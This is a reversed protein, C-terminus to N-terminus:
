IRNYAEAFTKCKAPIMVKLLDEHQLITDKQGKETILSM